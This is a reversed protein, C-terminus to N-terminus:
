NCVAAPETHNRM